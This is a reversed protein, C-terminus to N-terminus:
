CVQTKLWGLAFVVAAAFAPMHGYRAGPLLPPWSDSKCDGTISSLNGFVIAATRWTYESQGHTFESQM